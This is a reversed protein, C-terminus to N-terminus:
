SSLGLGHPDLLTSSGGLPQGEAGAIIALGDLVMVGKEYVVVPNLDLELITAVNAAVL